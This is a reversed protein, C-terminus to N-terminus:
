PLPHIACKDRLIQLAEPTPDPLDRLVRGRLDAMGPRELSRILYAWVRPIYDVYHVRGYAMSLRAFVGLIRLNRQVSLLDYALRFSPEDLRASSTFQGIMAEELAPSVDRRADQLLSMLDYARHGLMADQFDLQGVRAPGDREPLWLLNEAHYDRLILVEPTGTREQLLTAFTTSFQDIAAPTHGTVGAGYWEYALSSLRTMEAADYPGVGSPPPAAHLTILADGAAEYIPWELDPEAELVRAYLADGLDELLLFGRREDAAHIQPASLGLGLLHRAIRVFPRVDEGKEPPADMLVASRGDPHWLRDYKRMSADGALPAIAAEAWDTGEIFHRKADMRNM